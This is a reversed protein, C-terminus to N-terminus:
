QSPFCLKTQINLRMHPFIILNKIMFCIFFGRSPETREARKRASGSGVHKVVYRHVTSAEKNSLKRFGLTLLHGMLSCNNVDHSDNGNKLLFCQIFNNEVLKM